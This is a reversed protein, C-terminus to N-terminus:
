AYASALHKATMDNHDSGPEGNSHVSTQNVTTAGKSNNAANIIQMSKAQSKQTALKEQEAKLVKAKEQKFNFKETTTDGIATVTTGTTQALRKADGETAARNKLAMTEAMNTGESGKEGERMAKTELLPIDEVFPIKNYLKIAGNIFTYFGDQIGIFFGKIKDIVFKIGNSIGETTFDLNSIFEGLGEFGLKKVVFGLVDALLNLVSGILSDFIGSFFSGIVAFISGGAKFTAVARTIGSFLGVFAQIVLGVPGLFRIFMKGFAAFKSVMPILKLVTKMGGGVTKALNSIFTGLRQLPGMVKKFSEAFQKAEKAKGFNVFPNMMKAFSRVSELMRTGLPVKMTSTIGKVAKPIPGFFAKISQVFNALAVQTLIVLGGVGLYGTPSSMISANLEQFGPILTEFFFKLVPALLNSFKTALKVLLVAGTALLLIKTLDGISQKPIMNEFAEKLTALIGEGLPKADEPKEKKGKTKEINNKKDLAKQQAKTIKIEEGMLKAMVKSIGTTEGVSKATKKINENISSFFSVMGNLPSKMEGAVKLMSKSSTAASKSSEKVVPNLTKVVNVISNLIKTPAGLNSQKKKKVAM